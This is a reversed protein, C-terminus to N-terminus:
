AGSLERRALELQDLARQLAAAASMSLRKVDPTIAALTSRVIQIDEDIIESTLPSTEM